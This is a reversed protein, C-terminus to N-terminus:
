KGFLLTGSVGVNMRHRSEVGQEILSKEGYIGLQLCLSENIPKEYGLNIKATGFYGVFRKEDYISKEGNVFTYLYEQPFYFQWGVSPNIFIAGGQEGFAFRRSFGIKLDLFQSSVEVVKIPEQYSLGGPISNLDEALLMDQDNDIEYNTLNFSLSNTLSWKETLGLEHSLGISIGLNRKDASNTIVNITSFNVGYRYKFARIMLKQEELKSIKMGLRLRNLLSNHSKKADGSWDWSNRISAFGFTEGEEVEPGEKNAGLEGHAKSKLQNSFNVAGLINEANTQIGFQHTTLNLKNNFPSIQSKNSGLNWFKSIQKYPNSFSNEVKSNIDKLSLQLIRSESQLSEVRQAFSHLKANQNASEIKIEELYEITALNENKLKTYDSQTSLYDRELNEYNTEILSMKDELRNYNYQTYLHYAIVTSGLVFVWIYQTFFSLITSWITVDASLRSDIKGWVDDSPADNFSELSM